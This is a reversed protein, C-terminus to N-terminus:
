GPFPPKTIPLAPMGTPLGTPIATPFAPMTSPFGTPFGSPIELKVGSASPTPKVAGPRSTASGSAAASSASTDSAPSAADVAASTSTAAPAANVSANASARASAPPPGGADEDSRTWWYLGGLAAGAAVLLVAPLVFSPARDDAAESDGAFDAEYATPAEAAARRITLAESSTPERAAEQQRDVGDRAARLDAQMAAANPYRKERDRALARDVVRCLPEPLGPAVSALSRAERSLMKAILEGDNDAVFPTEGALVRFMVAGVAFLDARADLEEGRIQEPAMYAVPRLAEGSVLTGSPQLSRTVAFDLVRLAGARDVFLNSPTIARHLVGAAHAAGLVDCLEVMWDILETRSVPASALKRDLSAGDLLEMAWFPEGDPTVGVQGPMVIAAHKVRELETTERQISAVLDATTTRGGPHRLIKVAQREAEGRSAGYVAASASVALLEDLTWGDVITGLRTRAQAEISDVASGAQEEAMALTTARHASRSLLLHNLAAVSDGAAPPARDHCRPSARPRELRKRERRSGDWGSLHRVSGANADSCGVVDFLGQMAIKKTKVVITYHGANLSRTIKSSLDNSSADDNDAVSTLKDNSERRFLYMVTDLNPTKLTTKL